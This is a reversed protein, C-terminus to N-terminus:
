RCTDVITEAPTRLPVSLLKMRSKSFVPPKSLRQIILESIEPRLTRLGLRAIFDPM